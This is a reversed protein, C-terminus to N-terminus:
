RGQFLRQILKFPNFTSATNAASDNEFSQPQPMMGHEGSRQQPNSTGHGAPAQSHIEGQMMHPNTTSSFSQHPMGERKIEGFHDETTSGMMLPRGPHHETDDGERGDPTSSGMHLQGMMKGSFKQFQEDAMKPPVLGNDKAFSLCAEVHSADSCYTKCEDESKCGGPGGTTEILTKIKKGHEIRAVVEAPILGNKKAFELCADAHESNGCYTKCEVPGKCGGPGVGSALKKANKVENKSMLGKKEAFSLCAAQHETADCYAKCAAKDTCGGLEVVPFTIKSLPNAPTVAPSLSSSPTPTSVPSVSPTQAHAVNLALLSVFVFTTIFFIRKM